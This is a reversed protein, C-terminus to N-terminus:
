SLQNKEYKKNEAPLCTGIQLFILRIRINRQANERPFHLSTRRDFIFLSYRTTVEGICKPREIYKIFKVRLMM